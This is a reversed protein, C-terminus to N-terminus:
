NITELNKMHGLIALIYVASINIGVSGPAVLILNILSNFHKWSDNAKWIMQSSLPQLV